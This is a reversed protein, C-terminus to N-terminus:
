RPTVSLDDIYFTGTSDSRSWILIKLAAVGQPVTFNGKVTEWRGAMGSAARVSKIVNKGEAKADAYSCTYVGVTGNGPKACLVEAQIRYQQGPAVKFAPSYACRHSRGAATMHFKLAAKGSSAQEQALAVDKPKLVWGDVGDEL